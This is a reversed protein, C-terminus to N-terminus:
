KSIGYALPFASTMAGIDTITMGLTPDGLMVPACYTLSGRTFYQPFYPPAYSLPSDSTRGIDGSHHRLLVARPRTGRGQSRGGQQRVLGMYGATIGVFCLLRRLPFGAPEYESADLSAMTIHPPPKLPHERGKEPQEPKKQEQQPPPHSMQVVVLHCLCPLALADSM